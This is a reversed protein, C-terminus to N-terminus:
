KVEAYEYSHGDGHVAEHNRKWLTDLIKDGPLGSNKMAALRARMDAVATEGRGKGFDNTTARSM